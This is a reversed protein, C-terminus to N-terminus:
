PTSDDAARSQNEKLTQGSTDKWTERGNRNSGSLVSAASSPSDFVYSKALRFHEGDELLVGDEILKGRLARPAKSLSKAEARCILAGKLMTFGAHDDYAEAHFAQGRMIYRTAQTDDPSGVSTPAPPKPLPDFFTVGLVSLMTRARALYREMTVAEWEDLGSPSSKPGNELEASDVQLALAILRAELYRVHAKNLSNDKTTLVYCHTWDSKKRQHVRLRTRLNDTEGIYARYPHATNFQRSILIYTGARDLEERKQVRDYDVRAFAVCCGTWDPREAIRIGSPSGDVLVIRLAVTPSVDEAM